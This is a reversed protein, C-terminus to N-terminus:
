KLVFLWVAIIIAFICVLTIAAGLCKKAVRLLGVVALFVIILTVLGQFFGPLSYLYGLLFDRIKTGYENLKDIVIGLYM